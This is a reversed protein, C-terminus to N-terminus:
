LIRSSAELCVLHQKSIQLIDKERMENRQQNSNSKRLQRNQANVMFTCRKKYLRRHSQVGAAGAARELMHTHQLWWLCRSMLLFTAINKESGAIQFYFLIITMTAFMQLVNNLASLKIIVIIM